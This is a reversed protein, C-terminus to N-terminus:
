GQFLQRYFERYKASVKGTDFVETVRARGRASIRKCEDPNCALSGLAGALSYFDNPQVLIGADGVVEPISGSLTSVVPKGCAMSEVLVYGFQEQWDPTPISPLVFVDALNHIHPMMDYPYTGILKVDEEMRLKRILQHLLPGERGKGGILLRLRRGTRLGDLLVRFAYLLDYIGKERDLHAVFLIILDDRSCGFRKLLEPDKEMPHFHRSDIGPMQVRIKERPAGELILVEKARESIAIYLDAESFILEKHKVTVPLDHLFPINEWVTLVLKFGLNKKARAAQYTFYYMTDPAHVIDFGRLARALGVLDHYDGLLRTVPARLARAKLSQGLSFKKQVPFPISSVDFNHQQSAIGVLDYEDMLPTFNQMEWSNLNSGRVVAVKRKM